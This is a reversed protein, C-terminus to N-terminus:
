EGCFFMLPVAIASVAISGDAGSFRARFTTATISDIAIDTYLAGTARALQPIVVTPTFGAGHTVTSFGSPDTDCSATGWHLRKGDKATSAAAFTTQSGLNNEITTLRSGASADAAQLNNFATGALADFTGTSATVQPATLNGNKDFKALVTGDSKQVQLIDATQGAAAKFVASVVGAAAATFRSVFGFLNAGAGTNLETTDKVTLQGTFVSVVSSGDSNQVDFTAASQSAAGRVVLGPSTAAGALATKNTLTQVDTTGVVSGTVGHVAVSSGIHEQPERYDRATAMHRVNGVGAFHAQAASGDSGRTVTLTLGSVNTVTVIEETSLGPDLVLTFPTTGPLGSTTSVTIGTDSAAIDATLDIATAQSSYFRAAAL